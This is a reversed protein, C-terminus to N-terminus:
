CNAGSVWHNSSTNGVLFLGKKPSMNTKLPTNRLLPNTQPLTIINVPWSSTNAINWSDLKGMKGRFFFHSARYWVVLCSWSLIQLRLNVTWFHFFSAATDWKPSGKLRNQEMSVLTPSKSKRQPLVELKTTNGGKPIRILFNALPNKWFCGQLSVHFGQFLFDVLLFPAFEHPEAEHSPTGLVSNNQYDLIVPRCFGLMFTSTKKQRKPFHFPIESFHNCEKFHNWCCSNFHSCEGSVLLLNAGHIYGMGCPSSDNELWGNEPAKAM